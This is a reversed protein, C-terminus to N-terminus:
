TLTPTANDSIKVFFIERRRRRAGGSGERNRRQRQTIKFDRIYKGICCMYSSVCM